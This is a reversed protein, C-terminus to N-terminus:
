GAASSAPYGAGPRRLGRLATVDAKSASHKLCYRGPRASSAEVFASQCDPIACIGLHNPGFQAVVWSLGCIAAAAYRDAVSGSEDLHLHWRSRDHRVLVPRLPHQVLLANIRDAATAHDREAAAAFIAALETRLMRLAELDHHSWPGRLRPDDAVFARFADTGALRDTRNGVGADTNVLRVALEAYSTLDV